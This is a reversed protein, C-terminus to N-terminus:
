NATLIGFERAIKNIEEDLEKEKEESLKPLKAAEESSPMRSDDVMMTEEGTEPDIFNYM